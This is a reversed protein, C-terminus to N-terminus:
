SQEEEESKGRASDAAYHDYGYRLAEEYSVQRLAPTLEKFYTMSECCDLCIVPGRIMRTKDGDETWWEEVMKQTVATGAVVVNGAKKTMPLTLEARVIGFLNESKCACCKM